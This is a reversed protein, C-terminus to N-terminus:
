WQAIEDRRAEFSTIAHHHILDIFRQATTTACYYLARRIISSTSEFGAPHQAKIEERDWCYHTRLEPGENLHLVEPTGISIHKAMCRLVFLNPNLLFLEIYRLVLM